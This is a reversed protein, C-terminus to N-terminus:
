SAFIALAASAWYNAGLAAATMPVAITWAFFRDTRTTLVLLPLGLLGRTVPAVIPSRMGNTFPRIGTAPPAEGMARMSELCRVMDRAVALRATVSIETCVQSAPKRARMAGQKCEGLAAGTTSM